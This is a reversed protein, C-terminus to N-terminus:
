AFRLRHAISAPRVRNAQVGVCSLNDVSYNDYYGFGLLAPTGGKTAYTADSDTTAATEQQHV